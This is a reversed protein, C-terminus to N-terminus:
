RRANEFSFEFGGTAMKDAPCQTSGILLMKFFHPLQDFEIPNLKRLVQISITLSALSVHRTDSAEGLAM